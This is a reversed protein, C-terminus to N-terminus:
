NSTDLCPCPHHLPPDHPLLLLRFHPQALRISPARTQLLRSPTWWHLRCSTRTGPCCRRHHETEFLSEDPKRASSDPPFAIRLALSSSSPRPSRGKRSRKRCRRRRGCCCPPNSPTGTAVWPSGGLWQRHTLIREEWWSPLARSSAASHPPAHSLCM